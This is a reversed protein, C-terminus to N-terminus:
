AVWFADPHRALVDARWARLDGQAVLAVICGGFGGGTMRAGLAGCAVADAVLADIAPTTIEFDDRMSAHSEVMLAGFREMGGARLANVAALTRAQETVCHRGRRFPIDPLDLAGLEALGMRAIDERAAAAKVVDCEAKREAYRGESLERYVGSHIVAFHHTDPLDVLALSLDRTDLALAQGPRAVAVAMQDMIGCPVGIYDNEVRRALKATDSDSLVEGAGAARLVGVCVAASSSLGAGHPVDSTVFVDAGAAGFGERHALALAGVVYDSWHGSAASDLAREAVGDFGGAGVRVQGDGRARLSVTVGLSLATPLVTGGNYDLHEGILNVRGPTFVEREAAGGFHASFSM